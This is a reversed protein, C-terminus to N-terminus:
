NKPTEPVPQQNAEAVVPKNKDYQMLNFETMIKVLSDGYNPTSSYGAHSIDQAFKVADGEDLLAQKYRGNVKFFNAHDTFGESPTAYARFYDKVVWLYFGPQNSIPEISIVEPFVCGTALKYSEITSFRLKETTELLQKEGTWAKDAKIGWFNNGWAFRGWGSELITQALTVSAPIGTAKMSDVAAPAYKSLFDTPAM